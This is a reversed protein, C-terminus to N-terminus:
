LDRCCHGLHLVYCELLPCDPNGMPGYGQLRRRFDQRAASPHCSQCFDRCARLHHFRRLSASLHMRKDAGTSGSHLSRSVFELRHYTDSLPIDWLHHGAGLPLIALLLSAFTVHSAQNYIILLTSIDHM